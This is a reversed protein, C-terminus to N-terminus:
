YDCVRSREHDRNASLIADLIKSKDAGPLHCTSCITSDTLQQHKETSSSHVDHCTLCDMQSIGLAAVDGANRFIHRDIPSLGIMAEDSFDVQFDRFLNDGPVFTNPYPLRSTKSQGGRLHCQGCVSVVQRPQKNKTSLLAHNSEDTHKLPVDGHCAVCDLSVASFARTTTDVATTHCGACRDAFTTTDWHGNQPTLTHASESESDKSPLFSASHIELKGYQGSRKLYRTVRQSGLLLQVDAAVDSSRKRLSKLAEDDPQPSRITLQHRNLNWTTGIDRHCFLCEDGTMYQPFPHGVHDGGWAAAGTRPSNEDAVVAVRQLPSLAILLCIAVTSIGRDCMPVCGAALQM